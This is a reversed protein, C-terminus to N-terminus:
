KLETCMALDCAGDPRVRPARGDATFCVVGSSDGCFGRMGPPDPGRPALVYAFSRTSSRSAVAPADEVPPGPVFSRAYGSRPQLSTLRADLFSPGNPPYGPICGAPDQLCALRSDFLGGNAFKYAAQASIISRIDGIASSECLLRHQSASSSPSAALSPLAWLAGLGSAAM